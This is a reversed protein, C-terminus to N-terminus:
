FCKVYRGTQKGSLTKARKNGISLSSASWIILGFSSANKCLVLTHFPMRVDKGDEVGRGSGSLYVISKRSTYLM